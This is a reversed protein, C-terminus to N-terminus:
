EERETANGLVGKEPQSHEAQSFFVAFSRHSYFCSRIYGFAPKLYKFCHQYRKGNMYSTIWVCM